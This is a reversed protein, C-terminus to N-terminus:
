KNFYTNVGEVIGKAIKNIETFSGSFSRDGVELDVSPVTSYSTQTLDLAMTGNGFIGVGSKRMGGILNTGLKNHKKWNMKVPEMNRYSVVNPVTIAFAGKGNTSSDFHISIHCDACNNAVVTRAINDLNVNGEQRIMLVNYGEALLKAKVAKAVKLNMAAESYGNLLSTGGNISSAYVSGSSTSGGTVKPTGDPHCKTKLGAGRACGHGANVCVTINKKKSSTKAYFLAASGSNTLSENAYKWRKNWQIKKVIRSWKSYEKVGANDSYARVRFFTDKKKSIKKIVRSTSNGGKVVLTKGKAWTGGTKYQIEYGDASKVQKWSLTASGAVDSTLTTIQAKSVSGASAEASIMMAFILSTVCTNKLNRIIINKKM